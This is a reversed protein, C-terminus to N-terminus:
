LWRRVSAKYELYEAGLTAELDTEEQQIFVRDLFLAFVPVVLFPGVSGALVGIGVLAVVMGLYM